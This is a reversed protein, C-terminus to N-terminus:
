TSTFLWIKKQGPFERPLTITSLMSSNWDTKNPLSFIMSIRHAVMIKRLTRDHADIILCEILNKKM